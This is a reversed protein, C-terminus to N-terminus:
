QQKKRASSVLVTAGTPGPVAGHVLILNEELRVQVIRLNQITRRDAGMHGPMRKGKLVRGPRAKMGISGGRRVWGGGHSARGGRFGYRRVVGQFGRGKSIGVVDVYEDAAFVDAKITDGVACAPDETLRVERLVAPPREALGAAKAHGCEAKTVRSAKREGFGLQIAAYGHTKATRLATVTCPGAQIVTVPLSNGAKDYVQTMGLKKGIIGKM